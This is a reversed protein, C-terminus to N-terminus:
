ISLPIPAAVFRPQRTLIRWRDSMHYSLFLRQLRYGETGPFSHSRSELASTAETEFEITPEKM